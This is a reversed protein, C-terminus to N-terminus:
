ARRRRRGTARSSQLRADAALYGALAGLFIAYWTANGGPIYHSTIHGLFADMWRQHAIGAAFLFDPFMAVLHGLVVWIAAARVRRREQVVWVIMGILAVSGGVLFHTFWHFPADHGRYTIFLFAETAAAVATSVLSGIRRSM